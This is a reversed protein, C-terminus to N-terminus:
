RIIPESIAGRAPVCSRRTVVTVVSPDAVTYGEVFVGKHDLVESEQIM